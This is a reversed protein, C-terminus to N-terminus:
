SIRYQRGKGAARRRLVQRRACAEGLHKELAPVLEAESALPKVSQGGAEADGGSPPEGDEVRIATLYHPPQDEFIFGIQMWDGTKTHFLITIDSESASILRRPEIAEMNGRMQRYISLRAEVPREALGSPSVNNSLFDRMVDEGSNFAKIYAAVRRGAETEPIKVADASQAFAQRPRHAITTVILMLAVSSVMARLIHSDTKMM